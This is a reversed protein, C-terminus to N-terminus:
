KGTSGFGGSGRRTPTLEDVEEFSVREIKKVGMQAYREGKKIVVVDDSLNKMYSIIEGRYDWDIIGVSNLLVLQKKSSLGSRPYVHIAYGYPPEMAWGSRLMKVEDPRLTIDEVAYLDACSSGDTSYTPIVADKHLRKLKMDM